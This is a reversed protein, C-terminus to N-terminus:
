PKGERDVRTWWPAELTTSNCTLVVDGDYDGSPTQSSTGGDISVALTTTGNGALTFSSPSTSVVPGPTAPGTVTV